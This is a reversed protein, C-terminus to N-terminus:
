RAKPTPAPLPQGQLIARLADVPAVDRIGCWVLLAGVAIAAVAIGSIGQTRM